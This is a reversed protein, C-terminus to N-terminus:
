QELPNQPEARLGVGKKLPSSFGTDNAAINKVAAHGDAKMSSAFLRAM